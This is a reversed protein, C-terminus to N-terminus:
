PNFRIVVVSYPMAIRFEEVWKFEQQDIGYDDKCVTAYVVVGRGRLVLGHGFIKSMQARMAIAAKRLRYLFYHVSNCLMIHSAISKRFICSCSICSNKLKCFDLIIWLCKLAIKTLFGVAFTFEMAKVWFSITKCSWSWDFGHFNKCVTVSLVCTDNRCNAHTIKVRM